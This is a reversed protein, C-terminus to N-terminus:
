RAGHEDANDPVSELTSSTVGVNVPSRNVVSQVLQSFWQTSRPAVVIEKVLIELDVPIYRGRQMAVDPDLKMEIISNNPNNPDLRDDCPPCPLAARIEEEGRYEVRKHFLPAWGFRPTEQQHYDVYEVKGFAIPLTANISRISTQLDQFTTRIAVGEAGAYSHWMLSSEHESNVWCNVLCCQAVRLLVERGIHEALHLRGGQDRAPQPCIFGEYKDEMDSVLAFFLEQREMLSYFKAFSMYRWLTTTPGPEPPEWFEGGTSVDDPFLYQDGLAMGSLLKGYKYNLANEEIM